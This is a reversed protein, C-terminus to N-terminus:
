EEPDYDELMEVIGLTLPDGEEAAMRFWEETEDDDEEVGDGTFYMM